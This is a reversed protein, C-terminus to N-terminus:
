RKEVDTSSGLAQKDVIIGKHEIEKWLTRKEKHFLGDLFAFLFDAFFTMYTLVIVVSQGFTFKLNKNDVAITFSAVFIFTIYILSFQYISHAFIYAANEPEFVGAVISLIFTSFSSLLLTIVMILFPFISTCYEIISLRRKFKSKVPYFKGGTKFRSKDAIFGWVWRIHQKHLTKKDEPQEDFYKAYPYYIMRVNHYYCYNTLEVDETMGNWIWGGVSDVIEKDIYYGTGTLTAKEFLHSRGRSTFQNMFSFLTASTSCVWNKTANTFSRYGVGVQYGQHKVDNMLLLYDKSVVNDADFIMYADHEIHNAKLYQYADDLAFGKTKRNTLDGRVIYNFGFEEVIKVTPDDITEVIVYVDFKDRPYDVRKFSELINRIVKSENRAPILIGFKYYDNAREFKKPTRVAIFFYYVYYWLFLLFFLTALTVGVDIWASVELLNM